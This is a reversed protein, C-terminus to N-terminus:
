PSYIPSGRGVTWSGEVFGARQVAKWEELVMGTDPALGGLVFAHGNASLSMVMGLDELKCDKASDLGHFRTLYHKYSATLAPYLYPILGRGLPGSWGPLSEEPVWKKGRFREPILDSRNVWRSATQCFEQPSSRGTAWGDEWLVEHLVEWFEEPLPLGPMTLRVALDVELTKKFDEGLLTWPVLWLETDGPQAGAGRGGFPPVQLVQLWRAEACGPAWRFFHDARTFTM